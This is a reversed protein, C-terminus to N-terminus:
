GGGDGDDDGSGRNRAHRTHLYAYLDIVKGGDGGHNIADRERATRELIEVCQRLEADSYKRQTSVHSLACKLAWLLVKERENLPNPGM